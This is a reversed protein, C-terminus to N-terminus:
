RKHFVGFDNWILSDEPFVRLSQEFVWKLSLCREIEYLERTFETMLQIFFKHLKPRHEANDLLFKLLWGFSKKHNNATFYSVSKHFEINKILPLLDFVENNM